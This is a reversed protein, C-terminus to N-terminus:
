YEEEDNTLKAWDGYIDEDYYSVEVQTFNRKIYPNNMIIEAVKPNHWLHSNKITDTIQCDAYNEFNGWIIFPISDDSLKLHNKVTQHLCNSDWAFLDNGVIFARVEKNLKGQCIKYESKTPNKFIECIESQGPSILYSPLRFSDYFSELIEFYRM